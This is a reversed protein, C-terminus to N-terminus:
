NASMAGSDSMKCIPHNLGLSLCHSLDGTGLLLATLFRTRTPTGACEETEQVKWPYSDGPVNILVCKHAGIWVMKASNSM